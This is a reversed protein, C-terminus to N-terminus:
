DTRARLVAFLGDGHGDRVDDELANAAAAPEGVELEAPDDFVTQWRGDVTFGATELADVVETVSHFTADAYFPSEAKHAQYVRGLPSERDLAGVVLTGDPRLVRRCEELTAELDDVFCLTTALLVLDLVDDAIPLFEAVGRVPAVGRERAYELPNRAPDIGVPIGLPAAFRGTGVGLEVARSPDISERAPLARELATREARYAGAHDDYWADYEDTRTEFPSTTPM